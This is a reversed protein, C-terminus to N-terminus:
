TIAADRKQPFNNCAREPRESNLLRPQSSANHRKPVQCNIETMDRKSQRLFHDGPEKAAIARRNTIDTRADLIETVVPTEIAHEIGKFSGDAYKEASIRWRTSPKM